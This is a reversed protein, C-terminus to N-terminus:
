YNSKFYFKENKFFKTLLGGWKEVNFERIIELKNKNKININKYNLIIEATESYRPLDDLTISKIKKNISM